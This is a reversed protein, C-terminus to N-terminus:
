GRASSGLSRRHAWPWVVWEARGVVEGVPVTGGGPDGLHDRSDSSRDRHDGMVWLRGEPVRIDFRVRSSREGPYLYPENLPRGNVDIRGRRDCCVVHDGGVGIVRKVFYGAGSEAEGPGQDFSGRGSFVVVDGRRVHGGFRYALKDVIVRDGPRLTTEMSGSPIEFPEAVYANVAALVVVVALVGYAWGPVRGALARLRARRSDEAVSEPPPTPRTERTETDM